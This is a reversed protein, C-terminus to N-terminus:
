ASFFDLIAAKKAKVSGQFMDPKGGGRGSLAENLAKGTERADLGRGGLVYQYGDEDNGMFAACMGEFQDTMMTWARRLNNRDLQEDFLLHAEGVPSLTKIHEALITQKLENIKQRMAISEEHLKAAAEAVHEPKASLLASIAAVSAYKENYDRLARFGCLMYVRVGGKYKEMHTLRIMGIEGTTAVHPACCACLDYGPIEVIRVPGELEKKSRYDMQSLATDDPWTVVIKINKAVARNAELEIERIRPETLVGNFDMTVYDSGLHFGVNDLGFRRHVLGSVIHEGSHQQMDSFRKEWDILGGVTDGEYMPEAMEHYIVHDKEKVHLVERDELTGKDCTQGGEEPFFATQNLVVAFHGNKMPECSLVVAEFQILRSDEDFLRVTADM